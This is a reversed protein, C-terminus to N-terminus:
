GKATRQISQGSRNRSSWIPHLYCQIRSAVTLPRYCPKHRKPRIKMSKVACSLLSQDHRHAIFNPSETATSDDIMEIGALAADLWRKSINKGVDGKLLFWTAQIQPSLRDSEELNFYNLVRGKTHEREQYNLTHFYSGDAAKNLIQKLRLRAFFRYNLECGADIYAVGHNPYLKLATSVIEPKWSFYGYGTFSSNLYKRYRDNTIPAYEALNVESIHVRKSFEKMYKSQQLLRNASDHYRKDGFSATLLIWNM